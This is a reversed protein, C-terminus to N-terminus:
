EEADWLVREAMVEELTVQKVSKVSGDEGRNVVLYIKEKGAEASGNQFMSGDEDMLLYVPQGHYLWGGTKGDQTLGQEGYEKQRKQEAKWHETRSVTEQEVCVATEDSSDSVQDDADEMSALKGDTGSVVDEVLIGDSYAFTHITGGQEDASSLEVTVAERSAAQAAAENAEKEKTRQDYEEQTATRVGVLHYESDRITYVDVDGEAMEICKMTDDIQRDVLWRITQGKYYLLDKDRDYTVGYEKLYAVQNCMDEKYWDSLRKKEAESLGDYAQTDGAASETIVDSSASESVTYYVIGGGSQEMGYTMAQVSGACVAAALFSGAAMWRVKGNM